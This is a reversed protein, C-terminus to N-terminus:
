LLICALLSSSQQQQQQQEQKHHELNQQPRSTVFLLIDVVVGRGRASTNMSGTKVINGDVIWEYWMHVYLYFEIGAIVIVIFGTYEDVLFFFTM